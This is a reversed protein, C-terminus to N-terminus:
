AAAPVSAPSLCREKGDYLRGQIMTSRRVRVYEEIMDQTIGVEVRLLETLAMVALTLCDNQQQLQRIQSDLRSTVQKADAAKDNASDIRRQQFLEWLFGM